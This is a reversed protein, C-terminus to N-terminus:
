PGLPLFENVIFLQAFRLSIFNLKMESGIAESLMIKVKCGSYRLKMVFSILLPQLTLVCSDTFNSSTTLDKTDAKPYSKVVYGVELSMKICMNESM